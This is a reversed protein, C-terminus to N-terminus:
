KRSVIRITEVGSEEVSGDQMIAKVRYSIYGPYVNNDTFRCRSNNNGSLESISEFFEGDYSREIVYGTVQGPFAVTWVLTVGNGQRHVMFMGFNNNAHNKLTTIPSPSLHSENAFSNGSLILVFLIFCMTKAKM